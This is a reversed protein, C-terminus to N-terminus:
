LYEYASVTLVEGEDATEFDVELDGKKYRNNGLERYNNADLYDILQQVALSCSLHIIAPKPGDASAYEFRASTKCLTAIDSLYKPTLLYYDIGSEGYERKDSVGIFVGYFLLVFILMVAISIVKSM